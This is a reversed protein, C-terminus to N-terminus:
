PKSGGIKVISVSDGEKVWLFEGWTIKHRLVRRGSAMGGGIDRSEVVTSVVEFPDREREAKAQERREKSAKAMKVTLYVVAVALIAGMVLVLIAEARSRIM